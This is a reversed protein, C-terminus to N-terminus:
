RVVGSINDLMLFRVDTSQIMDASYDCISDKGDVPKLGKDPNEIQTKAFVSFKGTIFFHNLVHRGFLLFFIQMNQQGTRGAPRKM